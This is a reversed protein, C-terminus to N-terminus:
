LIYEDTDTNEVFKGKEYKYKGLVKETGNQFFVVYIVKWRMENYCVESEEGGGQNGENWQREYQKVIHLLEEKSM